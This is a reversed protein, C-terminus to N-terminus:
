RQKLLQDNQQRVKQFEKQNIRNPGQLALENDYKMRKEFEMKQDYERARSEVFQKSMAKKESMLQDYKRDKKEITKAIKQEHDEKLKYSLEVNDRVRRQRQEQIEMAKQRESKKKDLASQVKKDMQNLKGEIESKWREEDERTAKLIAKKNQADERALEAKVRREEAAKKDLEQKKLEQAEIKKQFGKVRQRDARNMAKIKM